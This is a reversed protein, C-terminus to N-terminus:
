RSVISRIQTHQKLAFGGKVTTKHMFTEIPLSYKFNGLREIPDKTAKPRSRKLDNKGIVLTLFATKISFDM